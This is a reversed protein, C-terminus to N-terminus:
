SAHLKLFDELKYAKAIDFSGIHTRRLQKLYAGVGVLQGFDHALSRIYTGKSCHVRFTLEPCQWSLVDFSHITVIRSKIQVDEKKRAKKYARQGDVKVASHAPPVQEITGTLQEKAEEIESDTVHDAAINTEFATELDYSATTKGLEIIGEYLKDQAQVEEIKKTYKGTALILLGTALPDLTGAHGVKTKLANRIKKVVDFSTWGQPKDILIFQGESWDPSTM